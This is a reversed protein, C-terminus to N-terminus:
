LEITYELIITQELFPTFGLKIKGTSLYPTFMRQLTGDVYVKVELFKKEPVQFTKNTGDAQGILVGDRGNHNDDDTAAFRTSIIKLKGQLCQKQELNLKDFVNQDCFNISSILDKSTATGCLDEECQEEGIFKLLCDISVIIPEVGSAFKHKTEEEFNQIFNSNGQQIVVKVRKERGSYDNFSMGALQARFMGELKEPSVKFSPVTTFFVFRFPVTVEYKNGCSSLAKIKSYNIKGIVRLYFSKGESDSIGADIKETTDFKIVRGDTLQICNVHYNNIWSNASKIKEGIYTFLNNM